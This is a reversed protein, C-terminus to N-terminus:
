AAVLINSIMGNCYSGSDPDKLCTENYGAWIKGGAYQWPLDDDEDIDCNNAVNTFWSQLSTACGPDCVSATLSDNSLSGRYQDSQFGLTYDDCYVLGTLATQCTDNINNLSLSDNTYIQYGAFASSNSSADQRVMLHAGMPMYEMGPGAAAYGAFMALVPLSWQMLPSMIFTCFLRLSTFSFDSKSITCDGMTIPTPVCSSYYLYNSLATTLGSETFDRGKQSASRDKRDKAVTPM